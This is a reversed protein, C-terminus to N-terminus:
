WVFLRLLVFLVLIGRKWSQNLSCIETLVRGHAFSDIVGDDDRNGRVINLLATNPARNGTAGVIIATLAIVLLLAIAM